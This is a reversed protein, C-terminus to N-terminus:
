HTGRSGESEHSDTGYNVKGMEDAKREAVQLLTFHSFPVHVFVWQTQKDVFKPINMHIESNPINILIAQLPYISSLASDPHLGNM